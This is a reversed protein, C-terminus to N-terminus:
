EDNWCQCAREECKYCKITVMCHLCIALYAKGHKECPQAESLKKQLLELTSRDLMTM